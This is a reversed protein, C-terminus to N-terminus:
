ALPSNGLGLAHAQVMMNMAATGVDIWTSRDKDLQLEAEAAARLDTCILILAPPRGLMGPSLAKILGIARAEQVVLFRLIRNNSASSAWTGAELVMKLQEASVPESKFDRTVRRSRLLQLVAEPQPLLGAAGTEVSM